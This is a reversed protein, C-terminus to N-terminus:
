VVEDPRAESLWNYLTKVDVGLKEAAHGRHGGCQALAWAAYRRQVVRIPLIEGGPQGSQFLPTRPEAPKQLAQPLDSPEVDPGRSLVLAREVVHSLERVNGPWDYTLLHRMVESSFRQVPSQPHRARQERLFHDALLPIDERRERLPPLSLSVVDLRYYLDERFSGARVAQRLDRHTAAVIRVDVKVAKDSGVPRVQGQELVHLLKVQIAPPIDGIEDLFLTGGDAQLFLGRRSKAAGTFAGKEHGFLESELLNEPLAACNVDVFPQAARRSEAHVVRAFLGKGTGTEGGILLPVDAAAVRELTDLLARMKPSHGVFASRSYRERLTTRLAAAERRLRSEDIARRLFIVLEELKFPKTLYHYAGQRISEVASDIAGHATMILIPRGPILQRAQAMLTLGDMDPMRLDTVLADFRQEGLLALAKHGSSAPVADFGHDGLGDALTAAMELEDDIILIRPNPEHAM